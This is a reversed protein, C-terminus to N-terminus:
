IITIGIENLVWIPALLEKAFYNAETELTKYEESTIGEFFSTNEFEFHGLVIHGIEHALTWRIREPPKSEDYITIYNSGNWLTVADCKNDRLKLPDNKGYLKESESLSFRGWGFMDYYKFPDVPLSSTRSRQMFHRAVRIARWRRPTRPIM